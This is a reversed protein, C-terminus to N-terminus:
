RWQPPSVSPVDPAAPCVPAGRADTSTLYPYGLESDRSNTNSRGWSQRKYVDLHTYSVPDLRSMAAVVPLYVYPYCCLSLVLIAAALGAFGPVSSVWAFAAVYSPVALPLPALVGVLRRGPLDTRTVLYALAVGVVM